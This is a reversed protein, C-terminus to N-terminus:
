LVYNGPALLVKLPADFLLPRKFDFLTQGPETSAIRLWTRVPKSDAKVSLNLFGSQIRRFVLHKEITQGSQINIDSIVQEQETALVHNGLDQRIDEENGYYKKHGYFGTYFFKNIRVIHLDYRGPLLRTGQPLKDSDGNAISRKSGHKTIFYRFVTKGDGRDDQVTFHLKGLQQFTVKQTFIKGAKIEVNFRQQKVGYSNVPQIGLQYAGTPLSIDIPTQIGQGSRKPAYFPVLSRDGSPKIHYTIPAPKGNILTAIRLVGTDWRFTRHVKNNDEDSEPVVHTADATLSFTYQGKDWELNTMPFIVRHVKGAPLMPVNIVFGGLEGNYLREMAPNTACGDNQGNQTCTMLLKSAGAATDGQNEVYVIGFFPDSAVEILDPMKAQSKSGPAPKSSTEMKIVTDLRTYNNSENSEAIRKGPDVTIKMAYNDAKRPLADSALLQLAYSAGPRLTTVDYSLM